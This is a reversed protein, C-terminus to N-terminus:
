WYTFHLKDLYVTYPTQKYNGDMQFNLTIGHWGSPASNEGYYRNIPTTVGNLTVSQYYVKYDWTRQVQIVVHNWANNAPKCPIGTQVWKNNVNDWIDWQHGNVLNCQHGFIFSKGSFFESIDFELIQSAPLNSSFFWADYVFNKLSPVLTQSNDPIGQTSGQGIVPNSWLVDSYPVTGGIDFKTAGGSQSMAWTVKPSCSSCIEYAPALEGWGKWGGSAQINTLTTGGVKIPVPTFSAGGCYDWEEVVTNNTGANLALKTNLTNGKVVFTLKNNVYIGMSAVGKSCGTSASAVFSVPSGVTAGSGPSSVSVGASAVTAWGAILCAYMCVSRM